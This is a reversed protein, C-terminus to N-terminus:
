KKTKVTKKSWNSYITKDLYNKKEARVKIVYKKGKQLKKLVVTTKKVYKTTAKKNKIGYKIQYRKAGNVKNFKLTITAKKSKAKVKNAKAKKIKPVKVTNLKKILSKTSEITTGNKTTVFVVFNKSGDITGTISAKNPNNKDIVGNTNVIKNPMEINFTLKLSINTDGGQTLAAIQSLTENNEKSTPMYIECYVTDTTAYSAQGDTAFAKQLNGKRITQSQIMQYYEKGDIVVKKFNQEAMSDDLEKTLAAEDIKKGTQDAIKMYEDITAQRDVLMEVKMSASGDSNIKIDCTEDMCGTFVMVAALMLAILKIKVNKM